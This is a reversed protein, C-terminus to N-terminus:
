RGLAWTFLKVKLNICSIGLNYRSRVFGPSHKLASHYASVAEESRDGNALTAGLKNWLLADDPRVQLASRFCDAAKEYDGSLNFLIGLGCQVDADIESSPNSRAASLFM